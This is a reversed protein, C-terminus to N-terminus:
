RQASFDAVVEAQRNRFDPVPGWLSAALGYDDWQGPEATSDDPFLDMEASFEILYGTTDHFMIFLNNGVGHRGPGWVVPVGERSFHDCWVKFADWGAVDFSYHDLGHNREREFIALSHHEQASRLWFGADEGMQDSVRFGLVDVYFRVLRGADPSALALHQVCDPRLGGSREGSRDIAGHFELRNGDPDVIAFVGPAVRDGPPQSMAVGARRLRERLAALDSEDRVEFAFHDLGPSGAVLEVAHHGRGFGLRVPASAETDTRTMGLAKEYFAAAAELDPTKLSLYSLSSRFM